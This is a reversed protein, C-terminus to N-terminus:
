STSPRLVTIKWWENAMEWRFASVRLAAPPTPQQELTFNHYSPSLFIFNEM